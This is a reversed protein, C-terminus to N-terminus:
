LHERQPQQGYQINCPTRTRRKLPQNKDRAEVERFPLHQVLTQVSISPVTVKTL